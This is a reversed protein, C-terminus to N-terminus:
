KKLYSIIIEETLIEPLIIPESDPSKFYVYFPISSRGYSALLKSIEDNKNTWDAKIYEINNDLFFDKIKSSNLAVRENVKCTICWDATFNLFVPSEKIKLELSEKSFVDTANAEKSDVSIPLFIILSLILFISVVKKIRLSRLSTFSLTNLWYIFIIITIGILVLSLKFPSVQSSLVWLLWIATLIMPFAMVQKFIEMWKGPRPLISVLKPFASLILYPLSFGVGLFLFILFSYYGPQLIAFGLASGMFPATCPTAVIVALFGTAFSNFYGQTGSILNNAKTLSSGINLDLLFFGALFIFLYILLAVILPSQLQYGWGININMAQLILISIGILIFTLIAGTSFSLGHLTTQVPNDSNKIFNLIKLSIVPFVCPMLNLILGGLLSFLLALGISIFKASEQKSVLKEQLNVEISFSKPNTGSIKLLGKLPGKFDYAPIFPIKLSLNNETIEFTQQAKIDVLENSFPFFYIDNAPNLKKIELSILLNNEEVTSNINKKYAIPLNDRIKLLNKADTNSESVYDKISLSVNGSQPICVDACVLWKSNLKILYPTQYNKPVKLEFPIIVQDNYGYTMLPPYPIKEPIPWLPGSIEFGRPLNWEFSAPEGSDGPNLWYTHWNKQLSIKVGILIINKENPVSQHSIIEIESHSANFKSEANINFTSVLLFIFFCFHLVKHM